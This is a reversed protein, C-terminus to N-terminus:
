WVCYGAFLKVGTSIRLLHDFEALHHSGSPMLDQVVPVPIRHQITSFMNGNQLVLVPLYSVSIVIPALREEFEVHVIVGIAGKVSIGDPLNPKALLLMVEDQREPSRSNTRDAIGVRVQDANFGANAISSAMPRSPLDPFAIRDIM